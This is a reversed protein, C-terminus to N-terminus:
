VLEPELWEAVALAHQRGTAAHAGGNAAPTATSPAPRTAAVTAPHDEVSWWASLVAQAFAWAAMRQRDLGLIDRFQDLRRALLARPNQWREPQSMPNRLWAGPEYAPEGWVGKPDIVFHGPESLYEGTHAIRGMLINEHHLDGHLLVAPASSSLLEAFIRQAKDVLRAPLPGPTGDFHARAKDLGAAWQAVTPFRHEADASEADVGADSAVVDSAVADAPTRWLDLMCHAAIATAKADDPEDLLPTGPVIRALLMAGRKLDRAFLPVTGRGAWGQLARIENQLEDGPPGAKLVVPTGDARTGAAVYNYSLNPFPGDLTFQWAAQWARLYEPLNALWTAGDRHVECITQALGPPVSGDM